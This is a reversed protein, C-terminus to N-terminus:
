RKSRPYVKIALFLAGVLALTSLALTLCGTKPLAGGTHSPVQQIPM